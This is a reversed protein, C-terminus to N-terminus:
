KQKILWQHLFTFTTKASEIVDEELYNESASFQLLEEQFEKWKMMTDKGYGSFFFCGSDPSIDFIEKYHKSLVQSGLTSGEIVYRLGFIHSPTSLDPLVSTMEVRDPDIGFHKLDKELLHTKNRDSPLLNTAELPRYFGYFRELVHIYDKITFDPRLLNVDLELKDHQPRTLEKLKLLISM